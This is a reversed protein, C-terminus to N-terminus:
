LYQQVASILKDLYAAGGEQVIALYAPIRWLERRHSFGPDIPMEEQYGRFLDEPVPEFFDVYALDIEASGYYIAPDIVMAGAATSIFNNKQADGHLLSPEVEPISLGPLRAILREVLRIASTSLNGSDIAAILRPWLRRETFFTLWDGAPRNDQFLSGFYGQREFGCCDRKIRHIRALTQGIQRWRLATREVAQAAALVMIVGNEVLAIGIPTPTLVGAHESFYRLGALEVEFQDLGHAAQSLKVFVAFSDNSLIASPHSAYENMDTFTKVRWERELYASVLQEVPQRLPDNL